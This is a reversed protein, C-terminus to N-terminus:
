RGILTNRRANVIAVGSSAPEQRQLPGPDKYSTGTGGRFTRPWGLAKLNTGLTFNGTTRDVFQPDTGVTDNEGGSIANYNGTNNYLCNYDVMRKLMDNAAATGAGVNIAYKSGGTQNSIINGTIKHQVLSAATGISIGHGGNGDIVNDSINGTIVSLSSTVIGDGLCGYIENELITNGDVVSIGAGGMYEIRNNVITNSHSNAKIGISAASSTPSSTGSTIYNGCVYCYSTVYMANMTTQNATNFTNNKIVWHSAGNSFLGSGGANNSTTSIYLNEIWIYEASNWVLGNGRFRPRGNEGILKVWGTAAGAVPTFFGTFDAYDSSTPADTGGGQMFIINGAIVKDGTANASDMLRKFTLAAGGIKWVGNTMAATSSNRDLTISTSSGVATIFYYGVTGNTGSALRLANGIMANTFLAGADTFTTSANSTGASASAAAADQQSYDVGFTGTTPSAVTACGAVTNFTSLDGTYLRVSGITATLTAAGGAVSAIKYWGPTWNTGSKVFVYANVDGAVFTYSASTVVPATGTASTAALDTLTLLSPDFFAGNTDVGSTRVRGIASATFAM